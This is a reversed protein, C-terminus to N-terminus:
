ETRLLFQVRRNQSWCTEKSEECFPKEEGYSITIMRGKDIGLIELERKVYNARKQGLALNYNNTGREDCHGELQVKLSLNKKLSEANKILIKKAAKSLSYKDYDFFVSNLIDGASFETSPNPKKKSTDEQDFPNQTSVKKDPKFNGDVLTEELFIPSKEPNKLGIQDEENSKELSSNKDSSLEKKVDKPEINKVSCGSLIGMYIIGILIAIPWFIKM